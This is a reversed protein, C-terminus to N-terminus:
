YGFYRVPSMNGPLREITKNLYLDLIEKDYVEEGDFMYRKGDESYWKIPRFVGRVVGKYEALVLEAQEAKNLNIKWSKRVAEYLNPHRESNIKYTKSINIAMIKHKFEKIPETSYFNNIEKTTLITSKFQSILLKEEESHHGSVINSLDTNLNFKEFSLTDILASELFLAEKESLSSRIIYQLVENRSKKIERILDLKATKKDINDIAEDVHNYVRNKTGKGIYFIKHDRPDVLAYVYYDKSKEDLSKKAFSENLSEEALPSFKGSM